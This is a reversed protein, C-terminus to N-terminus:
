NEFFAKWKKLNREQQYYQEMKKHNFWLKEQNQVRGGIFNDELMHDADFLKCGLEKTFYDWMSTNKKIYVKCGLYLMSRINGMAQQRDCLFLGINMECLLNIYQEYSMYETLFVCRNPLEKQAYNIIKQAYEKDGYSLPFYFRVNSNMVKRLKKICEMHHNSKTASNGVLIKLTGRGRDSAEKASWAKQEILLKERTVFYGMAYNEIDKLFYIKCIQKYDQEVLCVIGKVKEIIKRKEWFDKNLKNELKKDPYFDGGWFVIYTSKLLRSYKNAYNVLLQSWGGHIIIRRGPVFWKSCNLLVKWSCFCFVNEQSECKLDVKVGADYILFFHLKSDLKKNITLVFDDTFKERPFIHITTKMRLM